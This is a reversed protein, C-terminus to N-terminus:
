KRWIYSIDTGYRASVDRVDHVGDGIARGDECGLSGQRLLEGLEGRLPSLVGVLGQDRLLERSAKCLRVQLVKDLLASLLLDDQDARHSM